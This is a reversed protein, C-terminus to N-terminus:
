RRRKGTAPDLRFGHHPCRSVGPEGCRCVVGGAPPPNRGEILRLPGRLEPATVYPRGGGAGPGRPETQIYVEDAGHLGCDYDNVKL